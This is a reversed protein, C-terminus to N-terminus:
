NDLIEKRLKPKNKHQITTKNGEQDPGNKLRGYDIAKAMPKWSIASTLFGTWFLAPSNNQDLADLPSATTM